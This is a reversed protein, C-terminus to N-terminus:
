GFFAADRGSTPQLSSNSQIEKALFHWDFGQIYNPNVAYVRYGLREYFSVAAKNLADVVIDRCGRQRAIAEMRAMLESGLGNSRYEESVWLQTLYFRQRISHGIVGGIVYHNQRECVVAIRAPSEGGIQELGFSNLGDLIESIQESCPEVIQKYTIGSV